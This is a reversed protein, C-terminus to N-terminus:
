FMVEERVAACSARVVLEPPLAVRPCTETQSERGIMELILDVAVRGIADMPQRVTTLAPRCFAASEMDDFGVISVDAPVRLGMDSAAAIAGIALRDDAAFIATPRIAPTLSLLRRAAQYGGESSNRDLEVYAEPPPGFRESMFERYREVREYLDGVRGASICAIRRHGLGVLHDLALAAGMRNDVGVLPTNCILGGSGRAVSVLRQTARMRILFDQDEATEQLDGCLLLGDCYRLDLMMDRLQLAERPDRRANGLVLAYGRERVLDSIIEIMQAFWPDAIERVILGLLHSHKGSLARAGPHPRYGLERAALQVAERTEESIAIQTEAGSLVRSVTSESVGARRAVDRITATRSLSM